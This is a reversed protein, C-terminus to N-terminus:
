FISLLYPNPSLIKGAESIKVLEQNLIGELRDFTYLMAINVILKIFVM